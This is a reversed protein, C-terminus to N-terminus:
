YPFIRVSRGPAVPRGAPPFGLPQPAHPCLYKAKKGPVPHLHPGSNTVKCALVYISILLFFFGNGISSFTMMVSTAASPLDIARTLSRTTNTGKVTGPSM